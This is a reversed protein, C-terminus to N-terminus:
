EAFFIANTQKPTLSYRLIIENIETRTFDTRANMKRSLSVRSLGLAEALTEQNDNAKLMEAQLLRKNMKVVMGKKKATGKYLKIICRHLKFAVVKYLKQLM